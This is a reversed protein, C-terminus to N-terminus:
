APNDDHLDLEPARDLRALAARASAHRPSARLEAGALVARHHFRALRSARVADGPSDLADVVAQAAGRDNCVLVMDCGAQLAATARQVPEGAGHAAHMSLDDSFLAGQYGLERRLLRTLWHHSFSVPQADVAPVMLHATMLGPLGDAALREFPLMDEVRFSALDRPDVPLTEHSDDAVGGHGPFHKGVAAMGADRMGHVVARALTIVVDARRHYARDGIVQSNGRDLDLVPAFSMDVGCAALEAAMLWGAHGALRLGDAPDRDYAHGILGAAPLRTFGERFRQVRGGEHDVAVLLQPARLAHIAHTLAALQGPDVYNRSFLIVGGVAPHTLLERDTADLEVGAIDVMVPGLGM